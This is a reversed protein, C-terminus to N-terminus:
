LEKEFALLRMWYIEWDKISCSHKESYKQTGRGTIM